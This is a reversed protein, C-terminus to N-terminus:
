HIIDYDILTPYLSTSNYLDISIWGRSFKLDSSSMALM